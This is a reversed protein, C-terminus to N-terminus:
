RSGADRGRPIRFFRGLVVAMGVFLALMYVAVVGVLPAPDLRPPRLRNAQVVFAHVVCLLVATAGGAWAGFRGLAALTAVRREPALWYQRNPLNVFAVPLRTALWGLRELVLPVAVVLGLMLAVYRGRPMFGNAVGGAAFHSAVTEPMGGASWWVFAAAAGLVLAFAARM